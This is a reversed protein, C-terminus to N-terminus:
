ILLAFGLKFSDPPRRALSEGAKVFGLNLPQGGFRITFTCSTDSRNGRSTESGNCSINSDVEVHLQLYRLHCFYNDNITLGASAGTFFLSLKKRLVSDIENVLVYAGVRRCQFLQEVHTILASRHGDDIALRDHSEILLPNASQESYSRTGRPSM